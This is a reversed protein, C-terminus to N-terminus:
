QVIELGGIAEWRLRIQEVQALQDDPDDGGEALLEIEEEAPKKTNVVVVIAIIGLCAAGMFLQQDLAM